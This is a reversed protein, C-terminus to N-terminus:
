MIKMVNKRESLFWWNSGVAQNILTCEGYHRHYAVLIHGQGWVVLGGFKYSLVTDELINGRKM